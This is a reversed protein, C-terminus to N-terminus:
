ITKKALERIDKAELVRKEGNSATCNIMALGVDELTCVLHPSLFQFLPYLMGAVKYLPKLNRQGEVPKM